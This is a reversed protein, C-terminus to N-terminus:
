CKVESVACSLSRHKGCAVSTRHYGLKNRRKDSTPSLEGSTSLALNRMHPTSTSRRIEAPIKGKSQRRKKTSLEQLSLEIGLGPITGDSDIPNEARYLTPNQSVPLGVGTTHTLPNYTMANSVPELLLAQNLRSAAKRARREVGVAM